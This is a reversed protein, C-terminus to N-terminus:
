APYVPGIIMFGDPSFLDSKFGARAFMGTLEDIEYLNLMVGRTNPAEGAGYPTSIFGVADDRLCRRLSVLAEHLRSRSVHMLVCACAFAGFRGEYKDGVEYIDALEFRLDPRLKKALAIQDVSPDVGLYATNAIGLSPLLTAFRGHGCGVDIFESGAPMPAYASITVHDAWIRVTDVEGRQACQSYLDVVEQESPTLM